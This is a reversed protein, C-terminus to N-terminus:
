QELCLPVDRDGVCVCICTSLVVYNGESTRTYIFKSYDYKQDDYLPASYDNYTANWRLEQTKTDFMTIMYELFHNFIFFM